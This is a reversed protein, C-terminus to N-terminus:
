PTLTLSLSPNHKSMLTLCITINLPLFLNITLTHTINVILTLIVLALKSNSLHNPKHIPISKLHSLYNPNPFHNSKSNFKHVRGGMTCIVKPSVPMLSRGYM